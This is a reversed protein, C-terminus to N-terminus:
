LWAKLTVRQDKTSLPEERASLLRLSPAHLMKKVTGTLHRHKIVELTICDTIRLSPQKTSLTKLKHISRDGEQM